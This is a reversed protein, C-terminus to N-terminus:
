EEFKVVAKQTMTWVEGDRTARGEELTVIARPMAGTKGQIRCVPKLFQTVSILATALADATNLFAFTGERGDDTRLVFISTGAEEQPTCSAFTGDANPASLYLTQTQQPLPSPAEPTEVPKNATEQQATQPRRALEEQLRHLEAELCDIRRCLADMRKQMRQELEGILDSDDNQRSFFGKGM